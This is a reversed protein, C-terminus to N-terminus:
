SHTPSFLAGCARTCDSGREDNERTSLSPMTADTHVWIVPSRPRVAAVLRNLDEPWAHGGSHIFHPEVGARAAWSHMRENREWYGGWMSWVLVLRDPGVQDFLRTVGASGRVSMLFRGPHAVLEPTGVYGQGSMERALDM